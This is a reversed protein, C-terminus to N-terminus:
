AVVLITRLMRSQAIAELPSTPGTAVDGRREATASWAIGLIKLLDSGGIFPLCLM